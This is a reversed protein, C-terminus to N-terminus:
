HKEMLEKKLFIFIQGGLNKMEQTKPLVLKRTIKRTYGIVISHLFLVVCFIM